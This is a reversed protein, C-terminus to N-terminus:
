GTKSKDPENVIFSGFGGVSNEWDDIAKGEEETLKQKSDIKQIIKEIEPPPTPITFGANPNNIEDM